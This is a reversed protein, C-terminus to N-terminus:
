NRVTGSDPPALMILVTRNIVFRRLFVCNPRLYRIGAADRERPATIAQCATITARVAQRAICRHQRPRRRLQQHPHPQRSRFPGWGVGNCNAAISSKPGPTACDVFEAAGCLADVSASTQRTSVAKAQRETERPCRARMSDHVVAASAKATVWFPSM